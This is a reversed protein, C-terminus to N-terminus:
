SSSSNSQFIPGDSYEELLKEVLDDPVKIYVNMHFSKFFRDKTFVYYATFAKLNKPEIFVQLLLNKKIKSEQRIRRIAIILEQALSMAEEVNYKLMM